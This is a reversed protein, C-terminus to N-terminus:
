RWFRVVPSADLRDFTDKFLRRLPDRDWGAYTFECWVPRTFAKVAILGLFAMRDPDVHKRFPTTAASGIWTTARNGPAAAYSLQRITGAQGHSVASFIRYAGEEDLIERVIETAAPMRLGIGTRRNRKDRLKRYGMRLAEREVEEIRSKIEEWPQQMARAFKLDQDMGDFEIAFTRGARQNAGIVPDLLWAARACPELMSRICTWCAIPEVPETITKVFAMMHEGASELLMMAISRASALSERYRSDALERAFLSGTVPDGAVEGRLPRIGKYLTTLAERIEPLHDPGFM